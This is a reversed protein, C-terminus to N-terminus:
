AAPAKVLLTGRAVVCLKGGSHAGGEVQIIWGALSARWEVATITWALEVPTDAFVPAKFAFNFNLCLVERPGGADIGALHSAALGMLQAATQEGSAIIRGHRAAGARAPDHHVPNADGALLAFAAIQATSYSLERRFGDGIAVPAVPPAATPSSFDM